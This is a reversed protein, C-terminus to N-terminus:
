GRCMEIIIGELSVNGARGSKIARDVDSIMILIQKLKSETFRRAQGLMKEAIFPHLGLNKAIEQSTKGEAALEKAFLLSRTQRAILMLMRMPPEGTSLQEDLLRLALTSNKQSMADIMAFISIEPIGALTAEVDDLRVRQREGAHLAVKKTENDLFGMSVQPMFSIGTMMYDLAESEISKGAEKLREQVWERADRAKLPTLEVVAGAKEIVKFLKRRKDVKDGAIFLLHTYDPLNQLCDLLRTDSKDSDEQGEEKKGARFLKTDRVIIVNKGGFFPMSEIAQVLEPVSPDQEFIRLGMDRDEPPLAADIIAKEAQRAYYREEGFLLYVAELKGRSITQLLERIIM